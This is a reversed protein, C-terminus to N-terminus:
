LFSDVPRIGHDVWWPQGAGRQTTNAIVEIRLKRFMPRSGADCVPGLRCRPVRFLPPFHAFTCGQDTVCAGERRHEFSSERRGDRIINNAGAQHESFTTKQHDVVVSDIRTGAARLTEALVALEADQTVDCQLVASAGLDKGLGEVPDKLRDGQYTLVIECGERRYAAAIAYAISWKNAVGLIVATKGELLKSM